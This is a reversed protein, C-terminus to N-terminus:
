EAIGRGTQLAGSIVQDPGAGFGPKISAFTKKEVV